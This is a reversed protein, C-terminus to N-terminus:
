YRQCPLYFDDKFGAHDALKPMITSLYTQVNIKSIGPAGNQAHKVIYPFVEKPILEKM